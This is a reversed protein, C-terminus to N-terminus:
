RAGSPQDRFVSIVMMKKLGFDILLAQNPLKSLFKTCFRSGHQFFRWTEKIWRTNVQDISRKSIKKYQIVQWILLPWYILELLRWVKAFIENLKKFLMQTVAEFRAAMEQTTMNKLLDDSDAAYSHIM